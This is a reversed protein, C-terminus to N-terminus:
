KGAALLYDQADRGRFYQPEQERKMAKAMEPVRKLLFDRLGETKVEGAANKAAGSVGEVVAYTFLGHGLAGDELAEQDWRAASYVIINAAYSDNSLRQNYSNGSHCTDLFLIRRGNAAEVTEQFNVWPVVTSNRLAAGSFAADTALFRYSQGENLGHGSVFLLITDNPQSQRLVGLADLVNAANPADEAGAGNVLVRPVVREHLPGLRAAMTKAFAEADAGAVHLDCARPTVGDLERCAMSLNPYKDVGIALIYLVGRKDLAGEGEHTVAVEAPTEGTENIAVVRITNRGKALPVTFTLTGPKFGGGEEPQHEAIQRGNVQIRILKVLDPTAELAIELTASGGRLAANQAPSVIRLRPVPKALLDALKLNTGYAEKVAAEASALQIARAVIDPRNLSKRLQAATVYEAEHEPGHNIQWGILESGPGSAAYYGQPTWVVWEGDTGRFLTVLLERTKLNWLRVTQDDSGSVLTRGDPSIAVAWVDDEHGVFEGIKKGDLGYASLNGKYGGSIVAKGDPTFGYSLHGYGDTWGREISAVIKGDNLIDLIANLSYNGGKRHRLSLGGLSAKAREWGEQNTLPLPAALTEDSRLLRQVM